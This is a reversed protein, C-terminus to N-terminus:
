QLLSVTVWGSSATADVTELSIRTAAPYLKGLKIQLTSSGGVSVYAVESGSAGFAVKMISTTGNAIVITSVTIPTSASLQVWTSTTINTSGTNISLINASSATAHAFVPLLLFVVAALINMRM